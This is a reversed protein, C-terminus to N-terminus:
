WTISMWQVFVLTVGGLKEMSRSNFCFSAGSFIINSMLKFASGNCSRERTQDPHFKLLIMSSILVPLSHGGKLLLLSNCFSLIHSTVIINTDFKEKRAMERNQRVSLERAREKQLLSPQQRAQHNGNNKEFFNLSFGRAHHKTSFMTMIIIILVTTPFYHCRRLMIYLKRLKRKRIKHRNSALLNHFLNQSLTFQM